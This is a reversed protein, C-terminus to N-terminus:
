SLIARSIVKGMLEAGRENLHAGDMTLYLGREESLKMAGKARRVKRVDATFDAPEGFFWDSTTVIKLEKEFEAAVDVVEAGASDAAARIRKNYELRKRNRESELNEGVPPITVCVVRDTGWASAMEILNTYTEGFIGIDAAPRSGRATMESVFATWDGGRAAMEPLLIDNAGVQIVLVDPGDVRLADELRGFIGQVTDGDLGKLIPADDPLNLYRSYPIGLSGATLSDGILTITM